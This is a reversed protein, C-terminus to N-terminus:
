RPTLAAFVVPRERSHQAVSMWLWTEPTSETALDREDLLGEGANSALPASELEQLGDSL